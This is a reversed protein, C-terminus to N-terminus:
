AGSQCRPRVLPERWPRTEVVPSAVIADLQGEAHITTVRQEDRVIGEAAEVRAAKLIAMGVVPLLINAM